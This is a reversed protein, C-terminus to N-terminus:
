HQGKLSSRSGLLSLKIRMTKTLSKGILFHVALAEKMSIPGRYKGDYNEPMYCVSNAGLKRGDVSCQASFETPLDFLATEPRYGKEFATAYVFPKFSSGPQREATIINFNGDIKEDFYDRSGVM